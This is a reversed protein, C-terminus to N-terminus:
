TARSRSSPAHDANPVVLGADSLGKGSPVYGPRFFNFVTPAYMPTQNLRAAPDDTNGIGTYRGGISKANFARLVHSLRVVPERLKGASRSTDVARSGSRAPDGDVGGEHRRARRQRQRQVGGRRPRRLGSEPQQMVLRQILQKGIFPGVNPNNFLTDLAIKMDGTVRGRAARDERGPLSKTSTTRSAPIPTESNDDADAALRPDHDSTGRQASGTGGIQDQGANWRWGTFVKSM